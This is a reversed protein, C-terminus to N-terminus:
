AQGVMAMKRVEVPEHLGYVIERLRETAEAVEKEVGEADDTDSGDTLGEEEDSDESGESLVKGGIERLQVALRACEISYAQSEVSDLSLMEREVERYEVEVDKLRKDFEEDLDEEETWVSRVLDTLDMSIRLLKVGVSVEKPLVSEGFAKQVSRYFTKGFTKGSLKETPVALCSSDTVM